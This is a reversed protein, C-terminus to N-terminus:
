KNNYENATDQYLSGCQFYTSMMSCSKTFQKQLWDSSKRRIEIKQISQNQNALAKVRRPMMKLTDLLLSTAVPYQMHVSIFM